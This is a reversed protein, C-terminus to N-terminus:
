GSRWLGLSWYTTVWVVAMTAMLIAALTLTAKQLREDESDMSDAGLGALRRVGRAFVSGRGPVPVSPAAPGIGTSTVVVAHGRDAEFVRVLGVRSGSRVMSASSGVVVAGMPDERNDVRDCALESRAGIIVG